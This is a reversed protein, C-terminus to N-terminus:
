NTAAPARRKILTTRNRGDVRAYDITDVLQKVLHVGIGGPKRKGATDPLPAAPASRPDFMAGDDSITAVLQDDCFALQLEIEHAGGDSWGYKIINSIIEDLAVQMQTLVRAGVAYTEGLSEIKTTLAALSEPRNEITFRHTRRMNAAAPQWRLALLTVDDARADPEEFARVTEHIARVIAEPPRDVLDRLVGRLRADSFYEGGANTAETIGDSCAVLADGAKLEMCMARYTTSRRVGFPPQPANEVAEVANPARLRYPPPHGANVYHMTGSKTDIFALFVTVFMRDRNDQCLERNVVDAIAEPRMTHPALQRWLGIALRVLSRTRAMFMAAPAGKGSVDGVLFCFLTDDIYFFDYLDGGVERAPEMLAHLQVPREPTCAPFETPLMGLQLVRAANFEHELRDRTSRVHDNLRKKELCTAVRARLLTSNFPKSLYDEAGLEVCRIVSDIQDVASIMIVPITRLAAHAKLHELVEYGNMEPMMIDLLILDVPHARVHALAERGNTATAINKYGHRKLRGGLTYRNDENDDVILLAADDLSIM